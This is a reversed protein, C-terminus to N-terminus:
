FGVAGGPNASGTNPDIQSAQQPQAQLTELALEMRKRFQSSLTRPGIVLIAVQIDAAHHGYYMASVDHGNIPEDPVFHIARYKKPTMYKAHRSGPAPVTLEYPMNEMPSRAVEGPPLSVGFASALLFELDELYVLPDEVLAGDVLIFRDQNTLVYIRTDVVDGSEGPLQAQFAEVIGPLAVALHDPQRPDPGYYPNGEDDTLVEPGRMPGGFPLPMRMKVGKDTREWMPSALHTDMEELFKYFDATAQLREEYTAQGCGTVLLVPLVILMELRHRIM